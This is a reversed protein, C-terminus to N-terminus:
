LKGDGPRGPGIDVFAMGVVMTAVFVLVPIGGATLSVVAPGPCYGSLGWGVGFLAAGVVLPPDIDRRTPISWKDAFLPRPHRAVWRYAVFHVALAGIMVMALSADWRGFVDLFALVKRPDAMGALVLGVGFTVGSLLAIWDQVRSAKM